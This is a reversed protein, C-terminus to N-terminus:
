RYRAAFTVSGSDCTRGGEASRLRLMGRVKGGSIRGRFVVGADPFSVSMAFRGNSDVKTVGGFDFARIQGCSDRVRSHVNGVKHGSVKLTIARGQETTGRYTGARVSGAAPPGGLMLMGAALLTTRVARAYVADLWFPAPM